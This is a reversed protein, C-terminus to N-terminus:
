LLVTTRVTRLTVKKVAKATTTGDSVKLTIKYIGPEAYFHEPNIEKSTMDDGFYWKYKLADGDADSSQNVLNIKLDQASVDFDAVPATNAWAASVWTLCLPLVVKKYNHM